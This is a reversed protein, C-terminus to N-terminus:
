LLPPLSQYNYRKGFFDGDCYSSLLFFAARVKNDRYCEMWRSRALTFSFPLTNANFGSQKTNKFSLGKINTSVQLIEM